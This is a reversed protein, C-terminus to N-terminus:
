KNHKKKNQKIISKYKKIGAAIACIKLRIAFSTIGILIDILSAFISIFGTITSALVHFHKIYNLATCIKKHKRCILENQQIEKLFYNRTEGIDKLKFEPSM